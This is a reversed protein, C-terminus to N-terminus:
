RGRRGGGGGGGRGEFHGGGGRGEFQGGRGEFQGRDRGEFQGGDRGQFQGDRQGHEGNRNENGGQGRNFNGQNNNHWNGAENHWNQGQSKWKFNSDNRHQNYYNNWKPGWNNHWYNNWHNNWNNINNVHVYNNGNWYSGNHGVWYGGWFMFGMTFLPLFLSANDGGYNNNVVVTQNASNYPLQQESMNGNNDTVVADVTKPVTGNNNSSLVQNGNQIPIENTQAFANCFMSPVAIVMLVAAAIKRKLKRM